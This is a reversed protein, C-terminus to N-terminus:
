GRRVARFESGNRFALCNRGSEKAVYMARDAAVLMADAQADQAQRSVVGLSATVRIREEGSQIELAAIRLRLREAGVLMEKLTSGSSIILFEEGGLRCVTDQGRIADRMATGVARLADDGGAHGYRDNVRKFHDVDIMILSLPDGSRTSQSWAQELARMGARRNPLSTLADTLSLQEFERQSISLDKALQALKRQDRQWGEQLDLYRHVALLRADLEEPELDASFVTDAGHRFLEVIDEREHPRAVAAIYMAGGWETSRLVQCLRARAQIDGLDAVILLQPHFTVASKLVADVGVKHLVEFEGRELANLVRAVNAVDGVVIARRAKAQAESHEPAETGTGSQAEVVTELTAWCGADFDVPLELIESWERWETVSDNFISAIQETKLGLGILVDKLGPSTSETPCADSIALESLEYALHFLLMLLYSRSGKPFGAQSPREHYRAPDALPSPVKYDLMLEYSLECHDCGFHRRTLQELPITKSKELLDSFERPYITAFALEGIRSLLGCAFLEDPSSVSTAKALGRCLTAMLLCRSWFRHYDFAECPGELANEILSFTIAIQVVARLGVRVVVEPISVVIRNGHIASNALKLLRGSLAPDTQILQSLQNVTTDDKDCLEMIALAVGSPSPLKDGVNELLQRPM